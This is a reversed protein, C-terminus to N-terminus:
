GIYNIQLYNYYITFYVIHPVAAATHLFSWVNPFQQCLPSLAYLIRLVWIALPM